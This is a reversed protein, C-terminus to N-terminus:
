KVFMWRLFRMFLFKFHRPSKIERINKLFIGPRLFFGLFAKRQLRKLTNKDLGEPVFTANMFYFRKLNVEDLRGERKLNNYSETGPFPLYTFFNARILDLELSFRITKEIDEKTEGPFGLIFFGAVEIGHKRILVVSKRIGEVTTNKKMLKLVRDSGSEIGLSILYLGASKMLELLEDDLTDVRIGNPVSLSVNMSSEKVAKLLSKAFARDLTFNDDIIHFERIGRSNYLAEMEGLIHSVSRKRLRKGSILNGACFTCSFPCGRTTIIPAIPFKKFFAGHQAEPYTEPKILDWAPIGLNDINEEFFRPNSFVRGEKRWLLGEIDNLNINADGELMDLLKAFGREAEGQFLYDLENGFFEMTELPVSTPHPGGLVTKINRNKCSSLMGKLNHLDYTYCQFGAVDPKIEDLAAEFASPRIKEKVCDLIRVDHRDRASSALYGLGLAPQIHDSLNYPKVLLTRM